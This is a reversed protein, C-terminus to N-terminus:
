AALKKSRKQKKLSQKLIQMLDVTKTSKIKIKKRPIKKGKAKKQIIKKLEEHYTDHYIQPKFTKTLQDIFKIAMDLEKNSVAEKKPVELETPLHIESAYRLQQVILYQKYPKVVALHEKNKLVFKAIAVKKTKKLAERLLVYAKAAGKQPELYYFTDYYISDIDSEQTFDQIEITKTRKFSIKEFDEDLLVVYDGSKLQYGKVIDEWPIEKGDKKCIRAYRIPSLDKAHLLHFNLEREKVASFLNVPLNILGFSLWGRWIARM